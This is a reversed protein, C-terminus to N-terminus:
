LTPSLQRGLAALRPLPGNKAIVGELESYPVVAHPQGLVYPGIDYSQYTFLLGHPLALVTDTPPFPVVFFGAQKMSQSTPIHRKARIAAQIKSALRVRNPKDLLDDLNLIRGSALDLNLYSVVTNGHAGGTYAYTTYIVGLLGAADLKVVATADLTCGFDSAHGKYAKKLKKCAKMFAAVCEAPDASVTSKKGPVPCRAGVWKEITPNLRDAEKGTVVPYALKAYRNVGARNDRNSIVVGVSHPGANASQTDSHNAQSTPGHCATFLLGISLPLVFVAFLRPM